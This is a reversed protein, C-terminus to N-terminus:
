LEGMVTEVWAQAQPLVIADGAARLALVRGARGHALPFIGRKVPRLSPRDGVRQPRTLVWDAGAWAGNTPGAHGLGDGLRGDTLWTRNGPAQTGCVEGRHREGSEGDGDGLRGAGCGGVGRDDALRGANRLREPELAWGSAEGARRGDRGFGPVDALKGIDGSRSHQDCPWGRSEETSRSRARSSQESLLCDSQGLWAAWYLRQRIHPGGAGAACSDLARVTYAEGELHDFVDDLWALGDKSSVQEGYLAAPRGAGILRALEPYLHREDAKGKRKGANSFPQCPCSATWVVRDDPWGARTLAADWLGIGAFFHCRAFGQVDDGRVDAISRTDIEGETIHGADMAERLIFAKGKDIENYYAWQKM